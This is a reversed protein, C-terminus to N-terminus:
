KVGIPKGLLSKAHIPGYLPYRSDVALESNDGLVFYEDPGLTCPKDIALAGRLGRPTQYRFKRPSSPQVQENVYVDGQRIEVTEGPLGVVRKVHVAASQQPSRFAVVEWRQPERWQFASRNLYVRDGALAAQEEILPGKAGCEPCYASQGPRPLQDLGIDYERNCEACRLHCHVGLLTPAMSGSTVEYREVLWLAAFQQGIVVLVLWGLVNGVTSRAATM